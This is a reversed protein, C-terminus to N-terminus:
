VVSKRDTVKDPWFTELFNSRLSSFIFVPWALQKAIRFMDQGFGVARWRGKFLLHDGEPLGHHLTSM